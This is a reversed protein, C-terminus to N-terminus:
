PALAARTAPDDFGAIEDALSALQAALESARRLLRRHEGQRKSDLYFRWLCRVVSVRLDRGGFAKAITSFRRKPIAAVFYEFSLEDGDHPPLLPGPEFHFKDTAARAPPEGDDTRGPMPGGGVGDVLFPTPCAEQRHLPPLPQGAPG